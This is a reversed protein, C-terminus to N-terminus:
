KKKHWKQNLDLIIDEDEQGKEETNGKFIMKSLSKLPDTVVSTIIYPLISAAEVMATKRLEIKKHKVEQTFLYEKTLIGTRLMFFANVTGNTISNIAIKLGSSLTAGFLSTLNLNQAGDAILSSFFINIYLKLVRIFSPRFGCMTVLAKIMKFNNVVVIMMDLFGNQSLATFYFTNKATDKIYDDINKKITNNYLLFLKKNLKDPSTSALAEKLENVENPKLNGNKLINRSLKVSTKYNEKDGTAIKSVSYVPSVFISLMPDIVLAFYLIVSVAYFVYEIYINHERLTIGVKLVNYYTIFTFAAFSIIFILFWYFKKM